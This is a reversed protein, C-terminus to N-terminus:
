LRGGRDHARRVHEPGGGHLAQRQGGGDGSIAPRVSHTARELQEDRPRLCVPREQDHRGARLHRLCVAQRWARRERRLRHGRAHEGQHGLHQDGSQLCLPEQHLDRRWRPWGARLRNIVGAGNSSVRRVPMSARSTWTNTGPDYFHGTALANGDQLGGFAYLKGSVVASAFAERATPMKSKTVWVDGPTYSENTGVTGGSTGGGIAYIKGNVAAGALGIRPTPISPKVHWTRSGPDYVESTPAPSSGASGGVVYLLGDIVAAMASSRPTLMPAPATWSNTAPDYIELVGSAIGDEGGGALYFKGNIIGSVPTAHAYNPPALLKWSNTAPDYREFTAAVKDCTGYVYLKGGIAGTAGCAGAVLMPAKTTWTNTSPNYAFLTRTVGSSDGGGAVYLIGNITGTGNLYGRRAPLPAKTAWSNTAPNYAQVTTLFTLGDKTGGVAYVVGNVVGAAFGSRATPMSARTTWVNTAVTAAALEPEPLSVVSEPLAVEPEDPTTPGSDIGCGAILLVLTVGLSSTRM